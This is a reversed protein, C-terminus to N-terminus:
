FWIKLFKLYYKMAAVIPYVTLTYKSKSPHSSM